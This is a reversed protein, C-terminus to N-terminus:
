SCKKKLCFVAYPSRMLSKLESTHEDWRRKGDHGHRNIPGAAAPSTWHFAWGFIGPSGCIIAAQVSDHLAKSALGPNACRAAWRCATTSTGHIAEHSSNDM